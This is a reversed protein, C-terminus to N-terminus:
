APGHLFGRLVARTYAAITFGDTITADGILRALEAPDVIRVDDIGEARDAAFPTGTVEAFFLRVPTSTAGTDPYMIGLDHITAADTGIEERLERRADDAPDDIGPTGFGRPLELHWSRTSHRFHNLLVIGGAVLPLVVVGSSNGPAVVRGYTGYEGDRTKVADRVVMMFSDMFVVGTEAMYAPLGAEALDATQIREATAIEAPDTLIAFAADPPNAFLHPFSERLDDYTSRRAKEDV